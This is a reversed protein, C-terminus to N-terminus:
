FGPAGLLHKPSNGAPTGPPMGGAEPSPPIQQQPKPQPTQENTEKKEKVPKGEVLKGLVDWVSKPTIKMPPNAGPQQGGAMPDGMPGGMPPPGGLGGGGMPPMGPAGIGVPPGGMPPPVGLGGGGGMPPAGMPDQEMLTIFETFSKM